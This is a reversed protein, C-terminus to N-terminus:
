SARRSIRRKKPISENAGRSSVLTTHSAMSEVGGSRGWERYPIIRGDRFSGAISLGGMTTVGAFPM